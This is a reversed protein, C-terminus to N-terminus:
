RAVWAESLGPLNPWQSYYLAENVVQTNLDYFLDNSIALTFLEECFLVAEGM